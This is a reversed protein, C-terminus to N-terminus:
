YLRSRLMTWRDVNDMPTAQVASRLAQPKGPADYDGNRILANVEAEKARETENVGIAPRNRDNLQDEQQRENMTAYRSAAYARLNIGILLKLSVLAAWVIVAVAIQAAWTVITAQWNLALSSLRGKAVKSVRPSCEDIHSSDSLMDFVQFLVRIVLCGLPISAFGLRRAVAPSQDVFPKSSSGGSILDKCFIDIFRGYVAPRIHNFKTIFAHKLWDVIMESMLVIVAPSFITQLVSMSPIISIPIYSTPLMSFTSGSIEILNRLAIIFLLLALQFREVIDACTMQFLNEKEFKKFVAGKIEVFQNSLLLTLLANSYSNIAVNLTVLQYFLVLTHALNYIISLGFLFAPRVHPQSGDQRRGLTSRSLLSDLLDQGFSCCLRDAIELVNFIVYLKITEQGRVSHYMQSADTFRNLFICTVLVLIGKVLDCKHSVSLKKRKTSFLNSPERLLHALAVGFRLPLITFTYLFSDLCIVIGFLIIKEVEMPVSLFNSVRESKVEQTGDLETASMEERLYDWLSYPLQQLRGSAIRFGNAKQVGNGNLVPSALEQSQSMLPTMSGSLPTNPRSTGRSSSTAGPSPSRALLSDAHDHPPSSLEPLWSSSLLPASATRAPLRRALLGSPLGHNLIMTEEESSSTDNLGPSPTREPTPPSAGLGHWDRM